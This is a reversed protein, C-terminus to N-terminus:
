KLNLKIGMDIGQVFPQKPNAYVISCDKLKNNGSKLIKFLNQIDGGNRKYPINIIINVNLSRSKELMLELRKEGENTKLLVNKNKLNDMLEGIQTLDASPINSKEGEEQIKTLDNSDINYDIIVGATKEGKSLSKFSQEFDDSEIREGAKMGKVEIKSFILQSTIKQKEEEFLLGLIKQTISETSMYDTGKLKYDDSKTKKIKKGSSGGKCGYEKCYGLVAEKNYPLNSGSFDYYMSSLMEMFQPLNKKFLSDNFGAKDAKDGLTGELLLNLRSMVSDKIEQTGPSGMSKGAEGPKSVKAEAREGIEFQPFKKSLAKLFNRIGKRTNRIWDISAITKPDKLAKVWQEPTVKSKFGNKDKINSYEKKLYEQAKENDQKLVADLFGSKLEYGEKLNLLSWIDEGDNLFTKSLYALQMNRNGKLFEEKNPIKVEEDGETEDTPEEPNEDVLLTITYKKDTRLQPVVPSTIKEGKKGAKKVDARRSEALNIEKGLFSILTGEAFDSSEQGSDIKVIKFVYNDEVGGNLVKKHQKPDLWLTASFDFTQSDSEKFRKEGRWSIPIDEAKIQVRFSTKFPSNMASLPYYGLLDTGLGLAARASDIDDENSRMKSRLREKQAEQNDVSLEEENLIIKYLKSDM